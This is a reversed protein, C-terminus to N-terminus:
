QKQAASGSAKAIAGAVTDVFGDPAFGRARYAIKGEHDVVIITPISHVQLLANLGDAFVATGAVNETKLYPAVQTEDEDTNVALFVVDDRGEFKRGVEALLPEMTHCYSCWTAWFGLVITKGRSDALKLPTSGDVRRLTFEFPDQVGKNYATPEPLAAKALTQSHDYATLLIDGLGADSDHTLRWLNGMKLRLSNRNVPDEDPDQGALLFAAAYQRIAEDAQKREEAMEGLNLAANANPMMNFSVTLDKLAEDDKHLRHQIRGRILYLNMSFKTRAEQWQELSMSSSRTEPNAKSVRDILRTDYDVARTLSVDDGNKELLSIALFMTQGDNPEIAIAKEAYDLAAKQNELRMESEVLVRYIAARRPSDPYRALYGELNRVLAASDNGAQQVAMQLEVEPSPPEAQSQKGAPSDKQQKEAPQAASPPKAGQAATPKQPSASQAPPTQQQALAASSFALALLCALICANRIMPRANYGWVSRLARFVPLPNPFTRFLLARLM